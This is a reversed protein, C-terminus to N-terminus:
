LKENSQPIEEGFLPMVDDIQNRGNTGSPNANCSYSQNTGKRDIVSKLLQNGADEAYEIRVQFDGQNISFRERRFSRFYL